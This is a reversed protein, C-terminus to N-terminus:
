SLFSGHRRTKKDALEIMSDDEGAEGQGSVNVSAHYQIFNRM